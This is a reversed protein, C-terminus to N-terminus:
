IMSKPVRKGVSIREWLYTLTRLLFYFHLGRTINTRSIKAIILERCLQNMYWIPVTPWMHMYKVKIWWDKQQFFSYYGVNIKVEFLWNQFRICKQPIKNAVIWSKMTAFKFVHHYKITLGHNHLAHKCRPLCWFKIINNIVKHISNISSKCPIWLWLSPCWTLWIWLWWISM